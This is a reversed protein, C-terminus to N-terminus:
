RALEAQRQSTIDTALGTLRYRNHGSAVIAVSERIWFVRSLTRVEFQHEFAPLGQELATRWRCTIEERAPVDFGNWWLCAGANATEGLLQQAFGSREVAVQWRPEGNKLEVTGEWLLCDAMKMLSARRQANLRAPRGVFRYVLGAALGLAILLAGVPWAILEVQTKPTSVASVGAVPVALFGLLQFIRRSGRFADVCKGCAMATVRSDVRIERNPHIL